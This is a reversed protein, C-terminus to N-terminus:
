AEGLATARRAAAHDQREVRRQRLEDIVAAIVPAWEGPRRQRYLRLTPYWPSDVRGTMWRWDAEAHLLLCTPVALAGALHAAMTDVTVVVDCETILAAFRDLPRPPQRDRFAGEESPLRDHLPIVRVDSSDFLPAWSALEISRRPDWTGARWALGVTLRRDDHALAPLEREVPARLYPVQSPVTDPTTRFVHPLEMIEVDVDFAADPVGDHLPSLQGLGPTWSLLPILAPQVWLTVSRARRCVMPLYRVFQITDGLGHYCRVLVNRRDLRAGRWIRQEHRPRQWEDEGITALGADSVRWAAEFAGQRMLSMWEEGADGACRTVGEIDHIADDSRDAM